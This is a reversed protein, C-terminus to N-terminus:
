ASTGDFLAPYSSQLRRLATATGSETMELGAHGLSMETGALAALIMLPGVSGLHGIRIVSNSYRGLGTAVTLNFCNKAIAQVTSAKIGSPLQVATITASAVAPDACLTVLGWSQVCSRVAGSLLQHREFVRDLGEDHILALTERLGFIMNTAPTYPFYGESNCQLMRDWDWYYRPLKASRPAAIVRNSIATIAMGPPLSLAKQSGTIAVDVGWRDLEFPVAGLSSVADVFLLAPHDLEDLVSRALGPDSMVGTSTENHVMLIARIDHISDRALRDRLAAVNMTQQWTGPLQEVRLGLSRGMSMWREAFFGHTALLLQDGPSCSNMLAAEWGGTASSPYILINRHSTGFLGQLKGVIEGLLDAMETSRHDITPEAIAATVKTPVMTPGPLNLFHIGPQTASPPRGAEKTEGEM